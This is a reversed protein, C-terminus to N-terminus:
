EDYVARHATPNVEDYWTAKPTPMSMSWANLQGLTRSAHALKGDTALNQFAHSVSLVRLLVMLKLIFRPPFTTTMENRQTL